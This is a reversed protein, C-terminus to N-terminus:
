AERLSKPAVNGWAMRLASRATAPDLAATSASTWGKGGWKNPLPEFIAPEAEVLLVQQEPTLKLVVSGPRPCSAFIRNRVRFDRNGFHSSEAAGPLALALAFVDADNM